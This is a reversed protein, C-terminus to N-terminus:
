KWGVEYSFSLRSLIWLVTAWILICWLLSWLDCPGLCQWMWQCGWDSGSPSVSTNNQIFPIKGTSTMADWRASMISELGDVSLDRAFLNFGPTALVEHMLVPHSNFVLVSKYAEDPIYTSDVLTYKSFLETYYSAFDKSGQHTTYFDRTAKHVVLPSIWRGEIAQVWDEYAMQVFKSKGNSWWDKMKPDELSSGMTEIAEKSVIGSASHYHAVLQAHCKVLWARLSPPTVIGGEPKYVDLTPHAM